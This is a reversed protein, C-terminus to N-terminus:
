LHLNSQGNETNKCITYKIKLYLFFMSNSRSHSVSLPHASVRIVSKPLVLPVHLRAGDVCPVCGAVSLSSGRVTGGHASRLVTTSPALLWVSPWVTSPGMWVFHGPRCIRPSPPNGAAPSPFAQRRNLPCSDFRYTISVKQSRTTTAADSRSHVLFREIVSQFVTGKIAHSGDRLM